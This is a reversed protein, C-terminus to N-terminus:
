PCAYFHSSVPRQERAGLRIAGPERAGDVRLDIEVCANNSIRFDFGDQDGGTKFDFVIDDGSLRVRDNDDVRVTAISSLHAGRTPRIRGQFHHAQGKSTTRLYWEGDRKQGIWFATAAGAELRSSRGDALGAQLQVPAGRTDVESFAPQAPQCAPIALSLSSLVLISLANSRLNM